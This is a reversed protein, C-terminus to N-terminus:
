LHLSTSSVSTPTQARNLGLQREGILCTKGLGVLRCLSRSLKYLSAKVHKSSELLHIHAKDCLKMLINRVNRANFTQGLISRNVMLRYKLM